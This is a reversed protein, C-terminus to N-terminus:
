ELEKKLQRTIFNIAEKKARAPYKWKHLTFCESCSDIYRGRIYFEVDYGPEDKDDLWNALRIVVDRNRCELKM